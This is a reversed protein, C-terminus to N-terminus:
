HSFTQYPKFCVGLFYFNFLVHLIALKKLHLDTGFIVSGNEVSTRKRHGESFMLFGPTKQHKWPTYFHFMPQFHTLCNNNKSDTKESYLQPYPWLPCCQKKTIFSFNSFHRSLFPTHPVKSVFKDFANSM